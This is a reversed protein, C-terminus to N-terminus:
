RTATFEDPIQECVFHKKSGHLRTAISIRDQRRSCVSRKFVACCKKRTQSSSSPVKSWAVFFLGRCQSEADTMKLQQRQQRQRQKSKYPTSFFPYGEVSSVGESRTKQNRPRISLKFCM